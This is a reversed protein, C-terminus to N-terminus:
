AAHSVVISYSNHLSDRVTPKNLIVQTFNRAAIEGDAVLIAGLINKLSHIRHDLSQRRWDQAGFGSSYSQDQRAGLGLRTLIRQRHLYRNEAPELLKEEWLKVDIAWRLAAEGLEFFQSSRQNYVGPKLHTELAWPLLKLSNNSLNRPFVFNILDLKINIRNSWLGWPLDADMPKLTSYPFKLCKIIFRALDSVAQYGGDQFLAGSIAYILWLREEFKDKLNAQIKWFKDIELAHIIQSLNKSSTSIQDVLSLLEWGRTSASAQLLSQHLLGLYLSSSGIFELHDAYGASNENLSSHTLARRLLEPNRFNYGLSRELSPFDSM